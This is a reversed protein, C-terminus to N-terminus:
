GLRAAPSGPGGGAPRAPQLLALTVGGIGSLAWYALPIWGAIPVIGVLWMMGWGVSLPALRGPAREPGLLAAGFTEAKAALGLVLAALLSIGLAGAALTGPGHIHAAGFGLVVLGTTNATGLLFPLVPRGAAAERAREVFGPALLVALCQWALLVGGALVIWLPTGVIMAVKEAESQGGGRHSPSADKEPALDPAATPPEHGEQALGASGLVLVLVLGLILAIPVTPLRRSM